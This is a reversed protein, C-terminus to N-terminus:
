AQDDDRVRWFDEGWNRYLNEVNIIKDGFQYEAFTLSRLFDIITILKAQCIFFSILFYKLFFPNFFLITSM